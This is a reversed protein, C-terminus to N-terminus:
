EVNRGGDGSQVQHVNERIESLIALSCGKESVFYSLHKLLRFTCLITFQIIRLM